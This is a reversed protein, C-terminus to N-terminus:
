SLENGCPSHSTSLPTGNTHFHFQLSTICSVWYGSDLFHSPQSELEFRQVAPTTSVRRFWLAGKKTLYLSQSLIESQMIYLNIPLTVCCLLSTYVMSIFDHMFSYLFYTYQLGMEHLYQSAMRNGTNNTSM